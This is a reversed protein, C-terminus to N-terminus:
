QNSYKWVRGHDFPWHTDVDDIKVGVDRDPSSFPTTRDPPDFFRWPFPISHSFPANSISGGSAAEEEISHEKCGFASRTGPNLSHLGPCSDVLYTSDRYVPFTTTGSRKRSTFWLGTEYVLSHFFALNVEVLQPAFCSGTAVSRLTLKQCSM